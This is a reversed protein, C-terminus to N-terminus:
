SAHALVLSRQVGSPSQFASIVSTLGRPDALFLPGAEGLQPSAIPLQVGCRTQWLESLATVPRDKLMHLVASLPTSLYQSVQVHPAQQLLNAPICIFIM